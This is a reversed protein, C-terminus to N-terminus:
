LNRWYHRFGLVSGALVAVGSVGSAIGRVSALDAAEILVIGLLVGCGAITTALRWKWSDTDPKYLYDFLYQM